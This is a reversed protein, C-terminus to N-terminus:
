VQLTTDRKDMHLYSFYMGIHYIYVNSAFIERQTQEQIFKQYHSFVDM